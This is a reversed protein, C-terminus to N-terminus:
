RPWCESIYKSAKFSCSLILIFNDWQYPLYVHKKTGKDAPSNCLWRIGFEDRHRPCISLQFHSDKADFIGSFHTCASQDYM